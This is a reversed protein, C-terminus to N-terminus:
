SKGESVDMTKEIFDAARRLLECHSLLYPSFISPDHSWRRLTEVENPTLYAKSVREKHKGLFYTMCDRQYKERDADSILGEITKVRPYFGADCSGGYTTEMIDSFLEHAAKGNDSCGPGIFLLCAVAKGRDTLRFSEESM